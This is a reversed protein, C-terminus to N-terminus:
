LSLPQTTVNQDPNEGTPDVFTHFTIRTGDASIWPTWLAGANTHTIQTITNTTRDFLYIETVGSPNEGTLDANSNFAIRSGDASLTFLGVVGSLEPVINTIQTTTNNTANFLFLNPNSENIFAISNGDGSIRGFSSGSTTNTIQTFTSSTTNFVFTEQNADPNRGTLNGDSTFAIRTGDATISPGYSVIGTPTIQTSSCSLQAFANQPWLGIALSLLFSYGVVQVFLIVRQM